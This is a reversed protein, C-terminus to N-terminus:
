VKEGMVEVKHEIHSINFNINYQSTDLKNFSFVKIKSLLKPNKYKIAKICGITLENTFSFITDPLQEKNLLELVLSYSSQITFDGSLVLDEEYIIGNDYLSKKYGELRQKSNLSNKNGILVAIKRYGNQVLKNVSEYVSNANSLFIGSYNSDKIDRDVLVIPINENDFKVLNKLTKDRQNRVRILILGRIRNKIFLDFAKNEMEIDDNTLFLNIVFGKKQASDNIGQLIRAFFPNTVNPIIVGVIDLSNDYLFNNLKKYGQKKAVQLVKNKTDENVLEPSNLVRSVTATSVKAESAIERIGM